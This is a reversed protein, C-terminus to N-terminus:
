KQNLGKEVKEYTLGKKEKGHLDRKRKGQRTKQGRERTFVEKEKVRLGKGRKGKYAKRTKGM